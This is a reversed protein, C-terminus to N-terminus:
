TLKPESETQPENTEIDLRSDQMPRIPCHHYNLGNVCFQKGLHPSLTPTDNRNINTPIKM